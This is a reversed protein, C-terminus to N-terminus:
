KAGSTLVAGSSQANASFAGPQTPLWDLGCVYTEMKKASRSRRYISCYLIIIKGHFEVHMWRWKKKFTKKGSKSCYSQRSKGRAVPLQVVSTTSQPPWRRDLCNPTMKRTIPEACAISRSDFTNTNIRKQWLRGGRQLAARHMPARPRRAACSSFEIDRQKFSENFFISITHRILQAGRHIRKWGRHVESSLSGHAAPSKTQARVSAKCRDKRSPLTQWIESQQLRNRGHAYKIFKIKPQPWSTLLDCVALTIAFHNVVLRLSCLPITLDKVLSWGSEDPLDM